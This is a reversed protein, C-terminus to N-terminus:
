GEYSQVGSGSELSAMVERVHAEAEESTRASKIYQILHQQDQERLSGFAAMATSSMALGMGLGVPMEIEWSVPDYPRDGAAQKKSFGKQEM